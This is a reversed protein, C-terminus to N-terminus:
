PLEQEMPKLTALPKLNWEPMPWHRGIVAAQGNIGPATYGVKM